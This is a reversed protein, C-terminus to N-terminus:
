NLWRTAGLMGAEIQPGGVLRYIYRQGDHAFGLINEAFLGLTKSKSVFYVATYGNMPLAKKLWEFGRIMARVLRMVSVRSYRRDFQLTIEIEGRLHRISKMFFITGRADDLVYSNIMENQEIWYAPYQAEWKHDRDAANWARALALDSERAPRFTYGDFQYTPMAYM